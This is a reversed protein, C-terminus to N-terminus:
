FLYLPETLGLVLLGLPRVLTLVSGPQPLVEGNVTAQDGVGKCNEQRRSIQQNSHQRGNFHISTLIM